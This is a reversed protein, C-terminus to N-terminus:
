PQQSLPDTVDAAQTTHAPVLTERLRPSGDDDPVRDGFLHKVGDPTQVYQTGGAVMMETYQTLPL